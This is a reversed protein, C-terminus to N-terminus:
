NCSEHYLRDLAAFDSTGPSEVGAPPVPTMVSAWPMSDQPAHALGLIHGFEHLLVTYLRNPDLLLKREVLVDAEVVEATNGHTRSALRTVGLGGVELCFAGSAGPTGRQCYSHSSSFLVVNIGDENIRLAPRLNVRLIPAPARDWASAARRAITLTGANGIRADLALEITSRCGLWSRVRGSTDRAPPTAQDSSIDHCGTAGQAAGLLM